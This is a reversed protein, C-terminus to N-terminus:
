SGYKSTNKADQGVLLEPEENSGGPMLISVKKGALELSMTKVEPKAFHPFAAAATVNQM